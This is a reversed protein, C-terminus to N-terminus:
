KKNNYKEQLFRSKSFWFVVCNSKETLVKNTMKMEQPKFNDNYDKCGLCYATEFFNKGTKIPKVKSRANRM